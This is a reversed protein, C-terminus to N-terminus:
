LYLVHIYLVNYMNIFMFSYMTQIIFETELFRFGRTIFYVATYDLTSNSSMFIPIINVYHIWFIERKLNSSFFLNINSPETKGGISVQRRPFSDTTSM